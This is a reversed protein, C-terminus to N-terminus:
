PYLLNFEYYLMVVGNRKKDHKKEQGAEHERASYCGIYGDQSQTKLKWVPIVGVECYDNGSM